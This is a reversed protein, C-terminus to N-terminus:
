AQLLTTKVEDQEPQQAELVLPGPGPDPHRVVAVEVSVEQVMPAIRLLPELTVGVGVGPDHEDPWTPHFDNMLIIM